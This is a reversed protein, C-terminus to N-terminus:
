NQGAPATGVLGIFHVSKIESSFRATIQGGLSASVFNEQVFFRASPNPLRISHRVV